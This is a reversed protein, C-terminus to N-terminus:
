LKKMEERILTATYELEEIWRARREKVEKSETLYRKSHRLMRLEDQLNNIHDLRNKYEKYQEYKTLPIM